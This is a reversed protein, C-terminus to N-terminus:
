FDDQTREIGVALGNVPKYGTVPAFVKPDLPYRRQYKLEDNTPVSDAIPVQDRGSTVAITGRQRQYETLQVRGNHENNRYANAQYAQVWNLNLFLLAFLGLAVAGVRRLPANVAHGGDQARRAEGTRCRADACRRGAP